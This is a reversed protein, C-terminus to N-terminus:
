WWPSNCISKWWNFSLKCFETFSRGSKTKVCFYSLIEVSVNKWKNDVPQLLNAPSTTLPQTVSDKLSICLFYKLGKYLFFLFMVLIWLLQITWKGVTYLGPVSFILSHSLCTIIYQYLFCCCCRFWALCCCFLFCFWCESSKGKHDALYSALM